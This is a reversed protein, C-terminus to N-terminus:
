VNQKSKGSIVHPYILKIITFLLGFILPLIAINFEQPIFFWGALILVLLMFYVRFYKRLFGNTGPHMAFAAIINIPNAWLLNLNWVTTTHDTFFWLFVILLGLLGTVLLLLRDTIQFIKKRRFFLFGILVHVILFIIFVVVPTFIGAPVLEFDAPLIEEPQSCLPADNLTAYNFQNMLSDPLFMDETRGMVKDCPMGLALDIGFDSWPQYDLYKQISQRFTFEGAPVYTFEIKNGTAMNIIDRIRTSCNDYFFHYRYTRKEPRYNDELLELLKYETQDDLYILQESIGRGTYIYEYQFDGFDSRSLMYDLRGKAFKYYFQDDFQFTGYNYVWDIKRGNVKGNIRIASHGFLSYLDPGPTCTLLSVQMDSTEVQATSRQPLIMSIMLAALILIGKSYKKLKRRM